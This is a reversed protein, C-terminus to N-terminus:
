CNRRIVDLYRNLCKQKKERQEIHAEGYIDWNSLCAGRAVFTVSTDGQALFLKHSQWNAMLLPAQLTETLELETQTPTVAPHHAASM